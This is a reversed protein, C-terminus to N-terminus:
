RSQGPRALSQQRIRRLRGAILAPVHEECPKGLVKGHSIALVRRIAPM